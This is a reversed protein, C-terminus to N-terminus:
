NELISHETGDAHGYASRRRRGAGHACREREVDSRSVMDRRQRRKGEAKRGGVTAHSYTPLLPM